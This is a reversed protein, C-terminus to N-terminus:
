RVGTLVLTGTEAQKAASLLVSRGIVSMPIGAAKALAKVQAYEQESLVVNLKRTRPHATRPAHADYVAKAEM